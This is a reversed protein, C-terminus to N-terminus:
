FMLEGDKSEAKPSEEPESDETAPEVEPQEVQMPELSEGVEPAAEEQESDLDFELPQAPQVLGSRLRDTCEPAPVKARASFVPDRFYLIQKGYIAPFGAAFILMDGAETINGSGDKIAGPLRGCEDPTLLPRKIEQISRSATKMFVSTRAGSVTVSEKLVTTDGCAKSLYEKTEPKNPAYANKIHCNSTISEDKTYINTLQALDQTILYGKIGYGACFALAQEVVTMRGLSPFEDLLMLLRNRYGKVSRGDKFEMKSTLIRMTQTILIRLLPILREKDSPNVVLYLSVPTEANQLETIKFDSTSVNRAVVPDRYLSLHSKTTSIISGKEDDPTNLMDAGTAAVVPHPFTRMEEWLDETKQNPNSILHAVKPLSGESGQEAELLGSYIILSTLLAYSTKTWHDSDDIGKGKPDVIMLALNQADGVENDTGFRIESIPNYRVTSNTDSNSPDFRLCKNNAYRQRWGSTLAWNEGKIDLNITSEPWSLLTPLVLGVGKGSRTPAFTLVHEPGNHRLYTQKGTKPEVWGGVYVGELEEPAKGFTTKERPLLGSDIIEKKTAWRASGHLHKHKKGSRHHLTIALAYCSLICSSFLIGASLGRNFVEPYIRQYDLYWAIWSWPFYIKGQGLDPHYNLQHAVFQSIIQSGILLTAIVVPGVVAPRFKAKEHQQPIGYETKRNIDM